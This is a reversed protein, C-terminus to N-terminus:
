SGRFLAASGRVPLVQALFQEIRRTREHLPLAMFRERDPAQGFLDAHTRGRGIVM